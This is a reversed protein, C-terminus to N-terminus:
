YTPVAPDIILSWRHIGGALSCAREFGHARLWIAAELSRVGTHCYLLVEEGPELEDLRAPLQGLPILTAEPLRCWQFEMPERVDVLRPARGEDRRLALELVDMELPLLNM